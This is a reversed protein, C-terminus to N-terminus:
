GRSLPLILKVKSGKGETSDFEVRGGHEEMVRMTMPLGLGLGNQKTSFFPEFIRSLNEQSVGIGSDEISLVFEKGAIETKIALTKEQSTEMAHFANAITNL